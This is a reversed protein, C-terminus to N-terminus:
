VAKADTRAEQTPISLLARDVHAHVIDALDIGHGVDGGRMRVALHFEALANHFQRELHLGCSALRAATDLVQTALVNPNRTPPTTM